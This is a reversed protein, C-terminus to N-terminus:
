LKRPSYQWNLGRPAPLEAWLQSGPCLRSRPPHPDLKTSPKHSSNPSRILVRPDCLAEQSVRDVSLDLKTWGGDVYVGKGKDYWGMSDQFM